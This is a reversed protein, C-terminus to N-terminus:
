LLKVDRLSSWAKNLSVTGAEKVRVERFNPVKYFTVSNVLRQAKEDKRLACASINLLSSLEFM